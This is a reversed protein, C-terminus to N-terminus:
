TINKAIAFLATPNYDGALTVAQNAASYKLVKNDKTIIVCDRCLGFLTKLPQGPIAPPAPQDPTPPTPTPPTVPIETWQAYYTANATAKTEASIQTGGTAATFWGNFTWGNRTPTPLEGIATNEAVTKTMGTTLSGGNPNFTISYKVPEAPPPTYSALANKFKDRLKTANVALAGAAYHM